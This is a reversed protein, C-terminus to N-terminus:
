IGIHIMMGVLHVGVIRSELGGHIIPGVLHIRVMRGVM